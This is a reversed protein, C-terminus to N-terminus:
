GMIQDIEEQGLSAISGNIVASIKELHLNIERCAVGVRNRLEDEGVNGILESIERVHSLILADGESVLAEFSEIFNLPANEYSWIALERDAFTSDEFHGTYSKPEWALAEDIMDPMDAVMELIMVVENFHNLYDTALLSCPNINTSSVLKRYTRTFRFDTDM